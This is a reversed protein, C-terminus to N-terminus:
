EEPAVLVGPYRGEGSIKYVWVPAGVRRGRDDFRIVGSLGEHEVGSLAQSVQARPPPRPTEDMALAIAELLVNAADYALAARPGPPFGALTQYAQIFDGAGVLDAPDPGPSVFHLGQAADEAVQVVQPSGVDVRGWRPLSVGAEDLNRLIEGATVAETDLVVVQADPPIPQHSTGSVTVVQNYGQERSLTELRAATETSLAAINVMRGRADFPATTWPIVMALQAQDYVPMAAQTAESSFHGIVGVVAPDAVLAGAQIKAEQPNDFDNLAVLQLQYGHIGGRNNQEQLALKVAFLAEYGLPRHLGEFPAALGIKLTPPAGSWGSAGTCASLLLLVVGISYIKLTIPVLDCQKM